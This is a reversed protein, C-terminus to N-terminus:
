KDFLASGKTWVFQDTNCIQLLPGLANQNIKGRFLYVSISVLIQGPIHFSNLGCSRTNKCIIFIVPGETYLALAQNVKSCMASAKSQVSVRPHSLLICMHVFVFRFYGKLVSYNSENNITSKICTSCFWLFKASEQESTAYMFLDFPCWKMNVWSFPKEELYVFLNTGSEPVFLPPTTLSNQRDTALLPFHLRPQETVPSFSDSIRTTRCGQHYSWKLVSICM